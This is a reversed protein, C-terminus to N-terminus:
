NNVSSPKKIKARIIFLVAAVAACIVSVTILATLNVQTIQAFNFEGTEADQLKSFVLVTDVILGCIIALGAGAGLLAASGSEDATKKIRTPRDASLDVTSGIYYAILVTIITEPLMYTANYIFSYILAAGTPISIGAWVTAGSIVHCIYRLVCALMCGLMLATAQHKVTRRFVGGFGCVLFAIIYDLLVIALVSQWSTVYSLTNLGLLQQVIAYALGSAVGYGLGHRYSIIVVPLMSAVTVSGGYPLDIIKLMSLIVGLAVLITSELLAKTKRNMKFRWYFIM